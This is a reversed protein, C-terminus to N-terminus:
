NEAPSATSASDPEPTTTPEPTASADAEAGPLVSVDTSPAPTAAAAAYESTDVPQLKRPIVHHFLAFVNLAVVLLLFDRLVIKLAGPKKKTVTHKRIYEM